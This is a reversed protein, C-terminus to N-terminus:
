RKTYIQLYINQTWMYEKELYQLLVMQFGFRATRSFQEEMKARAEAASRSKYGLIFQFLYRISLVSM